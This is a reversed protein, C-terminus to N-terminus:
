SYREVFERAQYTVHWVKRNSSKAWSRRPAKTEGVVVYGESV